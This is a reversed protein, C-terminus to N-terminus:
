GQNNKTRHQNKEEFTPFIQRSSPSISVSCMLSVYSKTSGSLNVQNWAQRHWRPLSAYNNRLKLKEKDTKLTKNTKLKEEDLHLLFYYGRKSNLLLALRYSNLSTHCWRLVWSITAALSTPFSLSMIPLMLIHFHIQLNHNQIVLIIRQQWKVM